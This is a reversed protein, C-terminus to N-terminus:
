YGRYIFNKEPDLKRVLTVHAVIKEHPEPEPHPLGIDMLNLPILVRDVVKAVDHVIIKKGVGLKEKWQIQHVMPPRILGRESAEHPRTAYPSTIPGSEM